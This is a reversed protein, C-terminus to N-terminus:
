TESLRTWFVFGCENAMFNTSSWGRRPEEGRGGILEALVGLKKWNM